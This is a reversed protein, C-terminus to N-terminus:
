KELRRELEEKFAPLWGLTVELSSSRLLKSLLWTTFIALPNNGQGIVFQLTDTPIQELRQRMTPYHKTDLVPEVRVQNIPSILEAPLTARHVLAIRHIFEGCSGYRSEPDDNMAQEVVKREEEPLKGRDPVAEHITRLRTWTWALGYQDSSKAKYGQRFEPPESYGTMNSGGVTIPSVVTALHGFNGISLEEGIFFFNALRIDGHVFGRDNIEDIGAAADRMWKVLQWLEFQRHENRVAEYKELLTSDALDSVIMASPFSHVVNNVSLVNPHAFTCAMTAALVESWWEGTDFGVFKIAVNEGSKAKARWVEGLRGIGLQRELQYGPFLELGPKPRIPSIQVESAIVSEFPCGAAKEINGKLSILLCVYVQFLGVIDARSQVFRFLVAPPHLPLGAKSALEEYLREIKLQAAEDRDKVSYPSIGLGAAVAKEMLEEVRRLQHVEKQKNTLQDSVLAIAEVCAKVIEDQVSDDETGAHAPDAFRSEAEAGPNGKCRRAFATKKRFNTRCEDAVVDKTVEWVLGRYEKAKTPISERLKAYLKLGVLVLVDDADEWRSLGANHKSWYAQVIGTVDKWSLTILRDPTIDGAELREEWSRPHPQKQQAM